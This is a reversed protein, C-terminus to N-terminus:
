RRTLKYYIKILGTREAFSSIIYRKAKKYWYKFALDSNKFIVKTKEQEANYCKWDSKQVFDKYQENNLVKKLLVKKQKLKVSSYVVSKILRIYLDIISERIENVYPMLTDYSFLLESIQKIEGMIKDVNVAKSISGETDRYCYFPTDIYVMKRCKSAYPISVRLDEAFSVKTDLNAIIDDLLEKKFIKTCRTASIHAINIRYFFNDVTIVCDGDLGLYVKDCATNSVRKYPSDVLDIESDSLMKDMLIQYMNPDIWDDSDVFTVYESTVYKYGETYASVLGGNEKEIYKIRSDKEAYRKCIEGSNDPSGDNVLIIELDKYTQNVISDLCQELYKEVNYIPVIVSLKM